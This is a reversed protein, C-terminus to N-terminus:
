PRETPRDDGVLLAFALRGPTIAPDGFAAAFLDPYRPRAALAEAVDVPLDSALALPPSRELKAIVEPWLRGLQAMETDNILASLAQNELAGGRAILTAGSLPDLFRTGARGDWSLQEAWLAGFNSPALRPTVQPQDAFIAHSTPHGARDLSVIGPSGHVDDITGKDVGTHRGSRPDAGGFAPRHCTGCAITDDSSLQEDWFLIKGLVRKEETLPNEPPVPVPPVAALLAAAPSAMLVLLRVVRSWPFSAFAPMPVCNILRWPTLGRM